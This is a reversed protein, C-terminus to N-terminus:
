DSSCSGRPDRKGRPHYVQRRPRDAHASALSAASSHRDSTSGCLTALFRVSFGSFSRVSAAGVRMDSFYICNSQYAAFFCGPRGADRCMATTIKKSYHDAKELAFKGSRSATALDYMQAYGNLNAVATLAGSASSCLAVDTLAGENPGRYFGTQSSKELSFINVCSNEDGGVMVATDGVFDADFFRESKSPGSPTLTCLPKGTQIDFVRGFSDSRLM